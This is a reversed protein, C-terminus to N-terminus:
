ELTVATVQDVAITASATWSRGDAAEVRVTWTGAPLGPVLARGELLRFGDEVRARIVSRYPRGGLFQAGLRWHGVLPTLTVRAGAVPAGAAVVQGSLAAGERDVRIDIRPFM